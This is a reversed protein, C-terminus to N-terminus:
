AATEDPDQIIVGMRRRPASAKPVQAATTTPEDSTVVETFLKAAKVVELVEEVEAPEEEIDEDMDAIM